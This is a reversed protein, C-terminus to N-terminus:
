TSTGTTLTLGGAPWSESPARHEQRMLREAEITLARLLEELGARSDCSLDLAVFALHDLVPTTIGPQQSGFLSPAANDPRYSEGPGRDGIPM